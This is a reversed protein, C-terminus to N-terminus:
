DGDDDDDVELLEGTGLIRFCTWSTEMTRGVVSLSLSPSEHAEISIGMWIGNGCCVVVVVVVAVAIWRKDPSELVDHSRLGGGEDEEEEPPCWWCRSMKMPVGRSGRGVVIFPPQVM